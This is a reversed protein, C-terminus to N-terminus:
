SFMLFWEAPIINEIYILYNQVDSEVPAVFYGGEDDKLFFCDKIDSEPVDIRESLSRRFNEYENGFWVGFPSTPGGWYLEYFEIYNKWYDSQQGFASLPEYIILNSTAM